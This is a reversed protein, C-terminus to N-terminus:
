EVALYPMIKDLWKQDSFAAIRGIGAASKFPGHQERYGVLLRAQKYNFYPHQKLDDATATNINIKRISVASLVLLPKIRQFISDPMGYLEGVQDVSLFGGLANRYRVIQAARKEGIGPLHFWDAETAHNIDVPQSTKVLKGPYVPRSEVPLVPHYDSKEVAPALSIFPELRDYMVEPLTYIKKFDEKKRFVGGKARYNLISKVTHATLGLRLLTPEDANNPDFSFLAPAADKEVKEMNPVPASGEIRIYPKLRVYDAEKLTYIKRFDDPHRFHGGKDRYHIISAATKPTLGLRILTELSATNPDFAFVEAKVRAPSSVSEPASEGQYRLIDARYAAFDTSRTPWWRNLMVPLAFVLLCLLFLVVVGMREPRSFYLHNILFRIMIRGIRKNLIQRISNTDM